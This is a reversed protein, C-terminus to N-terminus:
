KAKGFSVDPEGKMKKYKHSLQRHFIYIKKGQKEYELKGNVGICCLCENLSKFEIDNIIDHLALKLKDQDGCGYHPFKEVKHLWLKSLAKSKLNNAMYITGSCILETGISYNLTMHDLIMRRAAFDFAADEFFPRVDGMFEADADVLLFPEDYKKHIHLCVKPKLHTNQIWTGSEPVAVNIITAGPMHQMASEVCKESADKYFNDPSTTHWTVILM